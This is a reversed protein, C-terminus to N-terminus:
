AAVWSGEKRDRGWSVQTDETSLVARTLALKEELLEVGTSWSFRGSVSVLPLVPQVLQAPGQEVITPASCLTRKKVAWAALRPRRSSTTQVPAVEAHVNAGLFGSSAQMLAPYPEASGDRLVRCGIGRSATGPSQSAQASAVTIFQGLFVQVQGLGGLTVM